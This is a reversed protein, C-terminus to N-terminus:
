ASKQIQISNLKNDSIRKILIAKNVEMDTGIECVSEVIIDDLFQGYKIKLKNEITHIIEKIINRLKPTTFNSKWKYNECDVSDDICRLVESNSTYKSFTYERIISYCLETYRYYGYREIFDDLEKISREVTRNKVCEELEGFFLM